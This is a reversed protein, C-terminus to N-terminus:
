QQDKGTKSIYNLESVSLLTLFVYFLFFDLHHVQLKTISHKRLSVANSRPCYVCMVKFRKDEYFVCNM